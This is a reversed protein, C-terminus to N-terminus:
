KSCVVCTMTKAQAYPGCPLSGCHAQTYALLKGDENQVRSYTSSEMASDVCIFETGASYDARSAMLYGSYQLLWGQTCVTTGPIMVTASFAALCVACSPENNAHSDQTEYEAGFVEAGYYPKVSGFTPSLSLCLFNSAGGPVDYWSGGVVGSYVLQASSGCQLSGWRVFTSTRADRINQDQQTDSTKLTLIDASMEAVKQSLQSVVADLPGNDDSRVSIYHDLKSSAVAPQKPLKEAAAVSGFSRAKSTYMHDVGRSQLSFRLVRKESLQKEQQKIVDQPLMEMDQIHSRQDTVSLKDAQDQVRRKLILMESNQDHLLRKISTIETRIDQLKRKHSLDQNMLQRELSNVKELLTSHQTIIGDNSVMEGKIEEWIWLVSLLFKFYICWLM